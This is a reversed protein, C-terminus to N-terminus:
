VSLSVMAGQWDWRQSQFKGESDRGRRETGEKYNINLLVLARRTEQRDLRWEQLLRWVRIVVEARFYIKNVEGRPLSSPSLPTLHGKIPV